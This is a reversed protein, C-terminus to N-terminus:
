RMDEDEEDLYLDWWFKINNTSVGRIAQTDLTQLWEIQSGNSFEINVTKKTNEEM